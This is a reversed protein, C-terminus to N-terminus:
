SWCMHGISTCNARKLRANGKRRQPLCDEFSKVAFPAFFLGTRKVPM